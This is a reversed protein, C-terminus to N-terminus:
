IIRFAFTLILSLQYLTANAIRLCPTRIVKDVGCKVLGCRHRIPKKNEQIKKHLINIFSNQPSLVRSKMNALQTDCNSRVYFNEINIEIAGLKIAKRRPTKVGQKKPYKELKSSSFASSFATVRECSHSSKHIKTYIIRKEGNLSKNPRGRIVSTRKFYHTYYFTPRTYKYGNELTKNEHHM